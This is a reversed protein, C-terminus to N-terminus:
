HKPMLINKLGINPLDINENIRKMEEAPSNIM